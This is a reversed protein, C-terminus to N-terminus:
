PNSPTYKLLDPVKSRDFYSADAYELNFKVEYPLNYTAMHDRLQLAASENAVIGRVSMCGCHGGTYMALEVHEFGPIAIVEPSIREVDREVARIHRDHMLATSCTPDIYTFYLSAAFVVLVGCMLVLFFRKGFKRTSPAAHNALSSQSSPENQM